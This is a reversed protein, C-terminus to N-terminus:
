EFTGNIQPPIVGLGIAFLSVASYQSFKKDWGEGFRYGAIGYLVGQALPILFSYVDWESLFFNNSNVIVAVFIIPLHYLGFLAAFAFSLGASINIPSHNLVEAAHGTIAHVITFVAVILISRKLFNM